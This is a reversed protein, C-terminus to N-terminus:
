EIEIKKTMIDLIDYGDWIHTMNLANGLKVIRSIGKRNIKKSFFNIFKLKDIGFYGITQLKFNMIKKIEDLNTIEKEFFYGGMGRIESINNDIKIIKSILLNQHNNSIESINKKYM